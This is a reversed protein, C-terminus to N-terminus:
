GRYEGLWELSGSSQNRLAADYALALAIVTDDHGGSPASYQPRGTATRSMTFAAMENLLVPDPQITIKGKEIAIALEEILPPKSIGTTTFGTVDIGDRRLEEINVEGISNTEVLNMVPNWRQIMAKLRERQFHYDIQQFRDIAVMQMTDVCFVVIVTFDFSRGWDIGCVYKMGATPQANFPATAVKAVGRFVGSGDTVFEALYEQQFVIAPLERKAAQIEEIPIHPNASSPFTWSQWDKQLPDQGRQYFHHFDNLGKPTSYFVAKGRYDSLTPRIVADWIDKLNPIVAAEDVVIHHYKRGRINQATKESDLSWMEFVGGTITELRRNTEDKHLIIPELVRKYSQWVDEGQKYSPMMYACRKGHVLYIAQEDIASDTKGFRRGCNGVKFRAPSQRIAAQAPHLTPLHIDVIQSPM